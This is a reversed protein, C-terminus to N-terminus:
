LAQLPTSDPARDAAPRRAVVHLLAGPGRLRDILLNLPWVVYSAWVAPGRTLVLRGLHAYQLTALLAFGNDSGTFLFPIEFGERELALRLSGTTFHTRHRPLELPFWDPGYRYRQWSGFNPVSIVLLGGPRLLRLIRALETRPDTVHELSHTMVVGDFSGDELAVTGLTGVLASVGRTRALECASASPDVGVVRWGHRVFAGALDGRGCGIDLLKGPPLRSISRLPPRRLAYDLLVRLGTRQVRGLFGVELQYAGYSDPYFSALEDDSAPPLTWGCGCASCLAVCFLDATGRLRDPTSVL